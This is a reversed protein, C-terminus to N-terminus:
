GLLCSDEIEFGTKKNRIRYIGLDTALLLKNGPIVELGRIEEGAPIIGGLNTGLDETYTDSDDGPALIHFVDNTDLLGIGCNGKSFTSAISKINPISLNYTGGEIPIFAFSDVPANLQVTSDTNDSQLTLGDGNYWPLNQCNNKLWTFGEFGTDMFVDDQSYTYWQFGDFLKVMDHGITVIADGRKTIDLIEGSNPAGELDCVEQLTYEPVSLIDVSEETIDADQSDTAHATEMFYPSCLLAGIFMVFIGLRRLRSLGTACLELYEM